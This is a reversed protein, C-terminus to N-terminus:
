SERLLEIEGERQEAVGISLDADGVAGGVRRFVLVRFPDGVDDVLVSPDGLRM